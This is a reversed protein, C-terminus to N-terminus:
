KTAHRNRYFCETLGCLDCTYERFKVKEGIGVIGSVSKVPHMLASDTLRIGCCNEPFFSFLKHQDAVSWQCYGPSYRNTVMLGSVLSQEKMKQHIKGITAEAIVSGLVDYVYGQVPDDGLLLGHSLESIEKGATCIFLIVEEANRLEKVVTKGINLEIGQIDIRDKKASFQFRSTRFIAGCIDMLTAAKKLGDDLYESFPEPLDGDPYGLLTKIDAKNVALEGFSFSFEAIM